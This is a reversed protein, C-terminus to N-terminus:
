MNHFQRFVIMNDSKIITVSETNVSTDMGEVLWSISCANVFCQTNAMESSDSNGDVVIRGNYPDGTCTKCEIITSRGEDVIIIEGAWDDHSPNQVTITKLGRICSEFVTATRDYFTGNAVVTGDLTLILEGQDNAQTGTTIQVCVGLVYRDFRLYYSSVLREILRRKSVLMILGLLVKQLM